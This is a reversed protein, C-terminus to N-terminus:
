ATGPRAHTRGSRPCSSAPCTPLSSSAVRERGALYDDLHALQEYAVAAALPHIRHELGMGTLAHRYHRSDEGALVFGGEGASLPKPGDMSFAAAQGFM